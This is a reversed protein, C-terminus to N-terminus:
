DHKPEKGDNHKQNLAQLEKEIQDLRQEMGDLRRNPIEVARRLYDIQITIEALKVATTQTTNGVWALLAVVLLVLATQAHREFM